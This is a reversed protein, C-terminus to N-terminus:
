SYYFGDFYDLNNAIQVIQFVFDLTLQSVEQQANNECSLNYGLTKPCINKLLPQVQLTIKFTSFRNFFQSVQHKLNAPWNTTHVLLIQHSFTLGLKGM